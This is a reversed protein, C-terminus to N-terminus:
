NENEKIIYSKKDDDKLLCFQKNTMSFININTDIIQLNYNDCPLLSYYKSVYWQVFNNDLIKNNKIYFGQMESHIETKEHPPTEIDERKLSFEIQLFPKDAKEFNKLEELNHLDEKLLIRKWLITNDNNTKKIFMVDFDNDDIFYKKEKLKDIDCIFETRNKLKYGYFEYKMKSSIEHLKYNYNKHKINKDLDKVVHKIKNNIKHYCKVTEWSITESVLNFKEKDVCYLISAGVFSISALYGLLAFIQYM